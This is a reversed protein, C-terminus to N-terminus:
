PQQQQSEKLSTWPNTLVWALLNAANSSIRLEEQFLQYSRQKEIQQQNLKIYFSPIALLYHYNRLYIPISLSAIIRQSPRQHM